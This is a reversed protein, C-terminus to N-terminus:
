VRFVSGSAKISVRRVTGLKPAPEPLAANSVSCISPVVSAYIVEPLIKLPTAWARSAQVGQPQRSSAPGPGGLAWELALLRDLAALGGEFEAAM